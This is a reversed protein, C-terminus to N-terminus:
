SVPVVSARLPWSDCRRCISVQIAADPSGFDLGAARRFGEQDADEKPKWRERDAATWECSDVTLLYDMPWVCIPCKPAPNSGCPWGGLKVGRSRESPDPKGAFTRRMSEPMADVPPLETRREPHIRCPVPVFGLDASDPPEPNAAANRLDATARWVGVVHPPGAKTARPSWFLQFLDTKPRMPFRPPWDDARIQLVAAMAVRHEPCQPWSEGAPWLIAGGLKSEDVKPEDGFRPHLRVAVRALPKLEPFQEVPDVGPKPTTRIANAPIRCAQLMALHAERAARDARPAPPASRTCGAVLLPATGLFARRNM